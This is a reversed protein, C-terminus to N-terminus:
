NMAEEKRLHGEVEAQSSKWQSLIRAVDGAIESRAFEKADQRDEYDMGDCCQEDLLKDYDTYMHRVHAVVARRAVEEIEITTTRGVRGSGIQCTHRAVIEAEDRPISPFLGIIAAPTVEGTTVADPPDIDGTTKVEGDEDWVVVTVKAM